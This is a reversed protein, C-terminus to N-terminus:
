WLGDGRGVVVAGLAVGRGVVGGAVDRGLLVVVHDDRGTPPEVLVFPPVIVRGTPPVFGTPPLTARGVVPEAPVTTVRGSVEDRTGPAALL